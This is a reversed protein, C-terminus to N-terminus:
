PLRKDNTEPRFRTLEDGGGRNSLRGFRGRKRGKSKREDLVVPVRRGASQDAGVREGPQERPIYLRLKRKFNIVFTFYFARLGESSTARRRREGCLGFSRVAVFFLRRRRPKADRVQGHGCGRLHAVPITLPVGHPLLSRPATRVPRPRADKVVV